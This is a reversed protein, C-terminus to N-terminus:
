REFAELTVGDAHLSGSVGERFIMLRVQSVGEPVRVDSDFEKWRREKRTIEIDSSKILKGAADELYLHVGAKHAGPLDLAKLDPARLRLSVRIKGTGEPLQVLQSIAKGPLHLFAKGEEKEVTAEGDHNDWEPPIGPGLPGATFDANRLLNKGFGKGTDPGGALKAREAAVRALVADDKELKARREISDLGRIFKGKLDEEVRAFDKTAGAVARVYKRRAGHVSGPLDAAPDKPLEGAKRV